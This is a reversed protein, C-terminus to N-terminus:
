VEPAQPDPEVTRRPESRLTLEPLEGREIQTSLRARAHAEVAAQQQKGLGDSAVKLRIAEMAGYAGALEPREKTGAAADLEQFIAVDLGRRASVRLAQVEASMKDESRPSGAAGKGIADFGSVYDRHEQLTKPREREAELYERAQPPQEWRSGDHRNSYIVEGGRRYLKVQDALNKAEIRELTGPMNDYAADHSARETMRGAGRVERQKEYRQLVGQWSTQSNVALARAETEYGAAKLGKLTAEVADSNRMTGEIVLNVRQEAGRAIAQEIWRGTDRDTYFAAKRDDQKLLEAYKPHFERFEDGNITVSGGRGKLEQGAQDVTVSKGSGPQGGFVIAMPAAQPKADAFLSPAIEQEFIERNQKESLQHRAAEENGAAM